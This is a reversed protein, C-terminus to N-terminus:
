DNENKYEGCWTLGSTEPFQMEAVGFSNVHETPPYRRYLGLNVQKNLQFWYKCNNCQETKM